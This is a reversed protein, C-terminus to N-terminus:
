KKTAPPLHTYDTIQVKGDTDITAVPATRFRGQLNLGVAGNEMKEEVLGDSSTNLIEGLSERIEPELQPASSTVSQGTKQEPQKQDPEQALSESHNTRSHNLPISAGSANSQQNANVAQFPETSEGPKLMYIAVVLLCLGTLIIITKHM